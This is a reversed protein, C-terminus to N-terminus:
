KEEIKVRFYETSLAYTRYPGDTSDEDLPRGVEVSVGTADLSEKVFLEADERSFDSMDVNLEIIIKMEDEL